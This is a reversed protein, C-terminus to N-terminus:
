KRDIYIKDRIIQMGPGITDAGMYYIEHKFKQTLFNHEEPTDVIVLHGQLGEYFHSEAYRKAQPYSM